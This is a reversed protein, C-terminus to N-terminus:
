GADGLACRDVIQPTSGAVERDLQRIIDLM